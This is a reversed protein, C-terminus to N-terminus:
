ACSRSYRCRGYDRWSTSTYGPGQNVPRSLFGSSRLWQASLRTSSLQHLRWDAVLKTYDDAQSYNPSAKLQMAQMVNDNLYPTITLRNLDDLYTEINKAISTLTGETLTQTEKSLSQQFYYPMAFIMIAAPVFFIILYFIMLRFRLSSAFRM